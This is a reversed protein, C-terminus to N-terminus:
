WVSTYRQRAPPYASPMLRPSRKLLWEARLNKGPSRFDALRHALVEIVAREEEEGLGPRSLPIFRTAVPEGGEDVPLARLRKIREVNFYAEAFPNISTDALLKQVETVGTKVDYACSFGLRDAIKSFSM